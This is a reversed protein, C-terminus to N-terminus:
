HSQVKALKLRRGEEDWRSVPTAALADALWYTLILISFVGESAFAEPFQEALRLHLAELEVSGAWLGLTVMRPLDFRAIERKGAPDFVCLEIREANASFVAFNVGLGDFNAGLPYPSGPLLRDPFSTM